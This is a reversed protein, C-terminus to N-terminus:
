IFKELINGKEDFIVIEYVLGLEKAANQKEFVYNKRSSEDM